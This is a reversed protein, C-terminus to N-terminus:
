GHQLADTLIEKWKLASHCEVIQIYQVRCKSYKDISVQTTQVKQSNSIISSYVSIYLYRNLDRGKTRKTM